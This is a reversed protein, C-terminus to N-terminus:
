GKIGYLAIENPSAFAAGSILTISNVVTTTNWQGNRSGVIGFTGATNLYSLKGLVSTLKGTDAYNMIWLEFSTLQSNNNTIVLMSSQGVNGTSQLAVVTDGTVEWYSYNTGTDGNFRMTINNGDSTARLTGRLVLHRYTSPIGSITISTSGTATTSTISEFSAPVAPTVSNSAASAASTGNANTATVTFTYATGATLGSVTIPSSGGTGTISSPSSTATFGTIASGGTAGATFAVSVTTGTGGDTATGITPAQPVTTATISNSAASAPGTGQANTATVTFTYGVGSQLGTVSIPSAAGTGTFGGPSSTVTYGTIPSGGTYTPATFTVDARGNNYARGSGVNTATGITPASPVNRDSSAIVGIIPM